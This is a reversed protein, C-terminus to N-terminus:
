RPRPPRRTRSPISGAELGRIFTELMWDFSEDLAIPIGFGGGMELTAFGHALSRLARIAHIEQRTSLGYGALASVCIGVIRTALAGIESDKSEGGDDARVTEAYIGPRLKVFKRYAHGLARIADGRARGIAAAAMADALERLALLRLERRLAALGSVHNFLSPPKIRLRAALASLTLADAGNLDALEAAAAVVKGSTLGAKTRM